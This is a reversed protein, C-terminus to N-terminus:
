NRGGVTVRLGAEEGDDLSYNQEADGGTVGQISLAATNPPFEGTNLATMLVSVVGPRVPVRFETGATSITLTQSLLTQGFQTVVVSVRDGDDIGFDIISFILFLGAIQIDSLGASSFFERDMNFIDGLALRSRKATWREQYQPGCGVIGTCSPPALAWQRFGTDNAQRMLNEFDALASALNPYGAQRALRELKRIDQGRLWEEWRSLDTEVTGSMGAYNFSPVQGGFDWDDDAFNTWQIESPDPADFPTIVFDDPGVKRLNGDEDFLDGDSDFPTMVFDDPGVKRLNGDEDFLDGDADFRVPDGTVPTFVVPDIKSLSSNRIRELRAKDRREQDQRKQELKANQYDDLDFDSSNDGLLTALQEDSLQTASGVDALTRSIGSFLGGDGNDRQGFQANPDGGGRVNAFPNIGQPNSGQLNEITDQPIAFGSSNGGPQGGVNPRQTGSALGAPPNNAGAASGAQKDAGPRDFIGFLKEDDKGAIEALSSGIAPLPNPQQSPSSQNPPPADTMWGSDGDPVDRLPVGLADAIMQPTVWAGIGAGGKPQNDPRTNFLKRLNEAQTPTLSQQKRQVGDNKKAKIMTATEGTVEFANAPDSTAAGAASGAQKYADAGGAQKDAGPRDFIGFLKEDDKGAIEALSSGIAPLPNPQQSPSSQNPPPADTMWGSDGDPVDRLPVGLADAIMQPTVWAGIGAGGKPQNDPRTNFLKRLNEAQTPTLATQLQAQQAPTLKRRQEVQDLFASQDPTLGANSQTDVSSSSVTADSVVASAATQKKNDSIMQNRMLDQQNQQQQLQQMQLSSQVAQQGHNGIVSAAALEGTQNAGDEALSLALIDLHAALRIPTQDANGGDHTFAMVSTADSGTLDKLAQATEGIKRLDILAKGNKDIAVASRTYRYPRNGGDAGNAVARHVAANWYVEGFGPDALAAGKAWHVISSGNTASYSFSPVDYRILVYDKGEHRFYDRSLNINLGAGTIGTIGLNAPTLQAQWSADRGLAPGQNLLPRVYRNHFNAVPDNGGISKSRYDYRFAQETGSLNRFASAATRKGKGEIVVAGDGFNLKAWSQNGRRARAIGATQTHSFDQSGDFIQTSLALFYRNTEEAIQQTGAMTAAIPTTATPEAEDADGAYAPVAMSGLLIAPLAARVMLRGRFAGLRFPKTKDIERGQFM